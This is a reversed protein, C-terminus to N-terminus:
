DGDIMSVALLGVLGTGLVVAGDILSCGTWRTRNRRLILLIVFAVGIGYWAWRGAWHLRFEAQSSFPDTGSLRWPFLLTKLHQQLQVPQYATRDLIFRRKVLGDHDVATGVVKETATYVISISLPDFLLKLDMTQPDYGEAPLEILRYDDYSILHIGGGRTIILGYFARRSHEAVIIDLIDLGPDIETRIVEPRDLVRRIHFVAGSEDRVFYGEDFPKLNTTKGGIATAPFVFGQEVLEATFLETLYEDTQNHDAGIFEMARDTFRFMEEPFPMAVVAPDNNFLPYLGIRLKKGPLHRAMVALAQRESAIDEASFLRGDLYLPLQNQKELNKYYLFPLLGEWEAQQYVTGNEDLYLSKHGGLDIRGVFRDLVPSYLLIPDNVRREFVIDYLLPLSLSLVVVTVAILSYRASTKM